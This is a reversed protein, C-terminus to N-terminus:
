EQGHGEYGSAMFHGWHDDHGSDCSENLRQIYKNLPSKKQTGDKPNVKDWFEKNHGFEQKSAKCSKSCFRAWGRKRDAIRASFMVQCWKCHVDVKGSM